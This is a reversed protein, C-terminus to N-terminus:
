RLVRRTTPCQSPRRRTRLASTITHLAEHRPTASPQINATSAQITDGILLGDILRRLDAQEEHLAYLDLWTSCLQVLSPRLLIQKGAILKLLLRIASFTDGAGLIVFVHNREVANLQPKVAELLVWALNTEQTCRM